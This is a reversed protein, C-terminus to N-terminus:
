NLSMQISKFLKCLISNRRALGLGGAWAQQGRSIAGEEGAGVCRAVRGRGGSSVPRILRGVARRRRWTGEEM